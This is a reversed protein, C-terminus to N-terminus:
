EGKIPKEGVRILQKNIFDFMDKIRPNDLGVDDRLEIALIMLTTTALTLKELDTRLEM